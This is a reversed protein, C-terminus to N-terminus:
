MMGAILVFLRSARVQQQMMTITAGKKGIIPGVCDTPVFVMEEIHSPLMQDGGGFQSGPAPEGSQARTVTETVLRRAEDVHEKKGILAIPRDESNPDCEADKRVQIRAGSRSTLMQITAGGKGIVAGVHKNPIMVTEEVEGEGPGQSSHSAGPPGGPGGGGRPSSQFSAALDVIEQILIKAARIEDPPGLLNVTKTEAGPPTDKDVQIMAGSQVQMRKITEGGKGILLGVAGLPVEVPESRVGLDAPPALIGQPAAPPPGQLQEATSPQETSAPAAASPPPATSTDSVASSSPASAQQAPVFGALPAAAPPAAAGGASDGSAASGAPPEDTTDWASDRRKKLPPQSALPDVEPATTNGDSSGGGGDDAMQRLGRQKKASGFRQEPVLQQQTCM